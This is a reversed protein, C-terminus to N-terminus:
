RVDRRVFALGAVSLSAVAWGSLVLLGSGQGSTLHNVEPDLLLNRAASMPLLADLPAAIATALQTMTVLALVITVMIGVLMSRALLTFGLTTLSYLLAFALFRAQGGLAEGSVVLMPNWDRVALYITGASLGAIVSAVALIYLGVAVVKGILLVARSPAALVSVGLQGARFEHGGAATAIVPLFLGGQLSAAVLQSLVGHEAQQPKGHFIEIMGNPTITQVAHTYLHLVQTLLLAQLGVVIATIVWIRPLTVLKTLESRIVAPLTTM